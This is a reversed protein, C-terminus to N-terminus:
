RTENRSGQQPLQPASSGSEKKAPEPAKPAKAGSDPKRYESKPAVEAEEKKPASEEKKEEKKEEQKPPASEEKKPAAGGEPAEGAELKFLDQGVAVTDEENALLETITGAKPANVAVDIKDTEITAIEEDAEVYDGKQKLWQKLTGETISEAMSPVKVIEDLSLPTAHFSRTLAPFSAPLARNIGLVRAPAAAALPRAAASLARASRSLVRPAQRAALM